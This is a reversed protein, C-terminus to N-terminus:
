KGSDQDEGYKRLLATVIKGAHGPQMTDVVEDWEPEVVIATLFDISAMNDGRKEARVLKRIVGVGIRPTTTWTKGRYRFTKGKPEDSEATEAEFMEDFDIDVENM